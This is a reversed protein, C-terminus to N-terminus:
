PDAAYNRLALRTSTLNATLARVRTADETATRFGDLTGAITQVGAVALLTLIVMLAIMVAFSVYIRGAISIKSIIM